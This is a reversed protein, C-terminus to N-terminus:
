PVVHVPTGIPAWGYLWEAEPTRMNVCGHSMPHGFNNHWYTGHLSYGQYFYMVWPVNPLDYDPGVMEQATLKLYISFDGTVTPTGPLGTSVVFQRVLNGDEYVYTQQEHLVVVIQKGEGIGELSPGGTGNLAPSDPTPEPTPSPTEEPIVESGDPIKLPQGVYIVDPTAIGNVFALARLSVGFRTAIRFLTDGPQIVYAGPNSPVEPTAHRPREDFDPAGSFSAPLNSFTLRQGSGIVAPGSLHNLQVLEGPPVGYFLSVSLMTDAPQVTLSGGSDAQAYVRRVAPALPLTALLLCIAVLARKM